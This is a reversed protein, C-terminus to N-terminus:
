LRAPVAKRVRAVALRLDRVVLETEFRVVVFGVRRLARDRRADARGRVQHRGGDVEVAVMVGPAAFDVIYEGIVYQRAFKVGLRRGSLAAWLANQRPPGRGTGQRALRSSSRATLASNALTCPSRRRRM